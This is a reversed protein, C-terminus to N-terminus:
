GAGRSRLGRGVHEHHEIGRRRRGIVGRKGGVKAFMRHPENAAACSQRGRRWSSERTAQLALAATLM